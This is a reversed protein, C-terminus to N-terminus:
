INIKEADISEFHTLFHQWINYCKQVSGKVTGQNKELVYHMVEKVWHGYVPPTTEKWKLLIMRRALLPSFAIMNAQLETLGVNKPIVGFIAVFPCMTVLLVGCIESKTNFISYWFDSLKPCTWFMHTLSAPEQQCRDCCTPDFGDKIKSLRVKSWHLRHVVKFQVVM